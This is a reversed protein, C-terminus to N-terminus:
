DKVAQAKSVAFSGLHIVSPEFGSGRCWDAFEQPHITIEKIIEGRSRRRHRDQSTSEYWEIYRTPFDFDDTLIALFEEYEGPLIRPEITFSAMRWGIMGFAELSYATM